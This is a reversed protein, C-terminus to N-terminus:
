ARRRLCATTLAAGAWGVMATVLPILLMLIVGNGLGDSVVYTTVNTTGAETIQGPTYPGGGTAIVAGAGILFLGLSGSLGALLAARRGILATGGRWAGGAGVVLPVVSLLLPQLLPFKPPGTVGDLVLWAALVFLGGALGPAAVGPRRVLASGALTYGVLIPLLIALCVWAAAYNDLGPYRVLAYAYLGACGAAVAIFAGVAAGARGWPPLLLAVGVCGVAFHWRKARADVYDLEGIMAQGWEAREAPLLGVAWHLLLAPADHRQASANPVVRQRAEELREMWVGLLVVMIVIIVFM